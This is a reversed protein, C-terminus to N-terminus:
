YLRYSVEATLGVPVPVGDKTGPEFRWQQVAAVANEDLGMGLPRIVKISKPVGDTGVILSLVVTGNLKAKRAQDTYEPNVHHVLKPATVGNGVHYVGDEFSGGTAVLPQSA